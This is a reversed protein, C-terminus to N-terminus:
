PLLARGLSGYSASIDFRSPDLEANGRRVVLWGRRVETVEAVVDQAYAATLVLEIVLRSLPAEQAAPQQVLTPDARLAAEIAEDRFHQWSWDELVFLGGPRLRPFLMNFSATTPALLHSADDIVLDLPASGFEEALLSELRASDAQDIGYHAHVVDGLRRASIFEDLAATRRETLDIAMIRAPRFLLALLATSGGEFIGLECVNANAPVGLRAYREIQWRAKRLLLAGADVAARAGNIGTPALAFETGDLLLRKDSRWDLV